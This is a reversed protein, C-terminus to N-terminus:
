SRVHVCLVVVVCLLLLCLCAYLCVRVICVLYSLHYSLYHNVSYRVRLKSDFQIALGEVGTIIRRGSRDRFPLLQLNGLRFKQLEADSFDSLQIPRYLAYIGFLEWVTNLYSVLKLAARQIDFLEIRLFRLRFDYSNVYTTTTSTTTTTTASTTSTTIPTGYNENPLPPPQQSQLYARKENPGIQTDIELQLHAMAREVLDPTEEIALCSVGHIEENINNRDQFSLGNLEKALLTDVVSIPDHEEEQENETTTSINSTSNSTGNM